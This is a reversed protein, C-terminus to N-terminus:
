ELLIPFSMSRTAHNVARITHTPKLVVIMVLNLLRFIRDM